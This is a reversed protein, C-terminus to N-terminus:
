NTPDGVTKMEKEVSTEGTPRLLAFFFSKRVKDSWRLGLSQFKDIELFLWSSDVQNCNTGSYSKQM